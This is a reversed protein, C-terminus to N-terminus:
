CMKPATAHVFDLANSEMYAYLQAHIVAEFVIVPLVSVLRYNGVNEKDGQKHVPTVHAAKWEEPM